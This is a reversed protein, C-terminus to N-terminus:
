DGMAKKRCPECWWDSLGMATTGGLWGYKINEYRAESERACNWPPEYNLCRTSEDMLSLYAVAKSVVDPHSMVRLLSKLGPPEYGVIETIQEVLNIKLFALDPKLSPEIEETEEDM